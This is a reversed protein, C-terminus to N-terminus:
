LCKIALLHDQRKFTKNCHLCAFKREESHTVKHKALSSSNSFLKFCTTCKFS